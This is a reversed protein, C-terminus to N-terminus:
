KDVGMASALADGMSSIDKDSANHSKEYEKIDEIKKTVAGITDAQDQSINVGTLLGQDAVKTGDGPDVAKGELYEERVTASAGMMDGLAAEELDLVGNDLKKLKDALKGVTEEKEESIHVGALIGKKIEEM